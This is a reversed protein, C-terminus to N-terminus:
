EDDKRNREIRLGPLEQDLKRLIELGEALVDLGDKISGEPTPQDYQIEHDIKKELDKLANKLGRRNEAVDKEHDYVKGDPRTM